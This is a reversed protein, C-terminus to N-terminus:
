HVSLSVKLNLLTAFNVLMDLRFEECRSSRLASVRPQTIKLLAALEAQTVDLTDIHHNLQRMIHSRIEM